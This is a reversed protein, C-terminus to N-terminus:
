IHAGSRPISRSGPPRATSWGPAPPCLGSACDTRSMLRPSIGQALRLSSRHGVVVREDGAGDGPEFLVGALVATREILARARRQDRLQAAHLGASLSDSMVRSRSASSSAIRLTSASAARLARSPAAAAPRRRRRTRGDGRRGRRRRGRGVVGGRRADTGRGRHAASSGAGCALRTAGARASGPVGRRWGGIRLIAAAPASRAAAKAAACAAFRGCGSTRRAHRRAAPCPRGSPNGRHRRRLRRVPRAVALAALRRALGGAGRGPGSDGCARRRWRRRRLRGLMAPELGVEIGLFQARRVVVRRM